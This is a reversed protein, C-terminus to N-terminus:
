SMSNLINNIDDEEAFMENIESFSVYGTETNTKQERKHIKVSKLKKYLERENNKVKDPLANKNAEARAIFEDRYEITRSQDKSIILLGRGVKHDKNKTISVYSAYRDKSTNYMAVVEKRSIISIDGYKKVLSDILNQKKNTDKM